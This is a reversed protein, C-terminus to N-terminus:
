IKSHLKISVPGFTYAYGDPNVVPMLIWDFNDLLDHETVDETLKRIM